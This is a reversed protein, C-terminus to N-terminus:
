VSGGGGWDVYMEGKTPVTSRETKGPTQKELSVNVHATISSMNVREGDIVVGHSIPESKSVVPHFDLNIKFVTLSVCM